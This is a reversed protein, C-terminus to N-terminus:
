PTVTADVFAEGRLVPVVASTDFEAAIEVDAPFGKDILERGSACERLRAGLDASAAAFAEAASRSEPSFRGPVVGLAALVAGAGWLDEAAPRLTRDPWREGAAIVAVREAGRERVWGAVASANRLSAGVVEVGSEALGFCLASGNPSPLVLRAPAQAARMSAPSLSIEGAAAHSRGVAVAAERDAAYGAASGPDWRYPYVVTGADLAVTLTTTFSLVDVVVAVDCDRTLAAAGTAGWDFRVPYDGQRHASPM